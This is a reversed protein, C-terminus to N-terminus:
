ALAAAIAHYAPKPRCSEDFPLPRPRRPGRQVDRLWTQGDTLEWTQVIRIAPERLAARMLEAYRAAVQADREPIGGPFDRDNVDIETLYVDLKRRALQQVLEAFADPDFTFGPFWHCELGVADLRVGAHQLEDVLRLFDARYRTGPVFGQKWEPGAENLVLPVKPDARHAAVFSRRIYDRGLGASWPGDRLGGPLGHDPWLPENVVDWSHLRGAYRGVTEAIHRDLWYAAERRSLRRVWDPQGENWILNHGRVALGAGRAFEVLADAEAFDAVEPRPRIAAFKLATDITVIRTQHRYLAAVLPDDLVARDVAAGFRLGRRAALAGLSPVAAIDEAEAAGVRGAALLAGAGLLLGRRTPDPRRMM